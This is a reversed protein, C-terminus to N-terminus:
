AAEEKRKKIENVVARGVFESGHERILDRIIANPITKIAHQIVEREDPPAHMPTTRPKPSSTAARTTPKAAEYTHNKRSTCKITYGTTERCIRAVDNVINNAKKRRDKRDEGEASLIYGEADRRFDSMHSAVFETVELEPSTKMSHSIFDRVEKQVTGGSVLADMACSSISM